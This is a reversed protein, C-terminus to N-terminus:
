KVLTTYNVGLVLHRISHDTMWKNVDSKVKRLTEEDLHMAFNRFGGSMLSEWGERPDDLEGVVDEHGFVPTAKIGASRLRLTLERMTEVERWPMVPDFAPDHMQLQDLFVGSIPHAFNRGLTALGLRGGPKLIRWATELLKVMDRSFFIGLSCAVADFSEPPYILDDMTGLIFEVNKVAGQRATERASSIMGPAIDVGIALGSPGARRAAEITLDGPGCALDLVHNGSAVQLNELVTRPIGAMYARSVKAYGDSAQDYTNLEDFKM